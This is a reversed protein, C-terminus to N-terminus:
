STELCASDQRERMMIFLFGCIAIFIGAPIISVGMKLAFINQAGGLQQVTLGILSHFVYGFIMIIMNAVATTLGVVHEPVYQSAKFIAIIQYGCGLGVIFFLITILFPSPLTWTFWLFCLSMIIGVFVIIDYYSNTKETIFSLLPGGFCMGIFISSPLTASVASELGLVQQLFPTGWVDAFGELPGVMLGAFLCVQIVRKNQFVTKIDMFVSTNTTAKHLPMSIYTVFALAIGIVIFISMVSQYGMAEKMLNVPGGGYIAGMLGITVSFSLMRTFRDQTFALHIIKFTGLIAASSGIGILLRGVIPYVWFSAFLFPFIGAVALLICSPIVYKPGYRDLLIGLPMHALSYGIYYIGSLQGFTGSDIQFQQMFEPMMISPMLRIIYQYAYFLSAISWVLYPSTNLQVLSM